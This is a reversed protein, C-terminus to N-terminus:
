FDPFFIFVSIKIGEREGVISSPLRALHYTLGPSLTLGPSIIASMSVSLARMSYSLMSSPVTTSKTTLSPVSFIFTLEKIAIM